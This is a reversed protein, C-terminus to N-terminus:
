EDFKLVLYRSGKGHRILLLHSNKQSELLKRAQEPSSVGQRDIEEILDGEQIGLRHALSGPKVDAVLVGTRGEYGFREALEPTLTQLSLGLKSIEGGGVPRGEDDTKLKGIVVDLNKNKGNRVVTLEVKTGPPTLAIRNRFTGLKGVKKGDIRIIVDGQKLGAKEAPSGEIVQTVVIGDNDELNFATALEPTIEQIYVGL